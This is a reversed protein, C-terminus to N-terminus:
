YLSSLNQEEIADILNSAFRAGPAGDVLDHDFAVTICLVDRVAIEDNNEGGVVVPKRHIGGLTIGLTHMPLFTLGWGGRGNKGFM